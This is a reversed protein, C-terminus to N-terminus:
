RTGGRANMEALAAQLLEANRNAPPSPRSAGGPISRLPGRAPRERAIWQQWDARWQGATREPATARHALWKATAADLGDLGLRQLHGSVAAWGILEDDPQWNPTLACTVSSGVAASGTRARARRKQNGGTVGQERQNQPASDAGGGTCSSCGQGASDAGGGTCIECGGSSPPATEAGDNSDAGPVWGVALPLRYVREGRPGRRGEVLQLEGSEIATDVAAVIARQSARTRTSLSRTSGYATCNPGAHEALSLLVLRATGRATSKEWVWDRAAHSM